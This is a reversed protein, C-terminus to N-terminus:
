SGRGPMGQRSRAAQTFQSVHLVHARGPRRDQRNAQRGCQGDPGPHFGGLAQSDRRQRRRGAARPQPEQLAVMEHERGITGHPRAVADIVQGPNEVLSEDAPAAMVPNFRGGDTVPPREAAQDDIALPEARRAQEGRRNGVEGV